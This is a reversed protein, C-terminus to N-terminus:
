EGFDLGTVIKEIFARDVTCENLVTYRRGFNKQYWNITSMTKIFEEKTLRIEKPQWLIGTRQFAELLWDPDNEQLNAIVYAGLAVLEGHLFNKGTQFEANYAFVHDAGEQPRSSGFTRCIISVDEFGEMTTRIGERTVQKIQDADELVRNLWGQMKKVAEPDYSEGTSEHALKWDWLAAHACLIDGVGSRNLRPPAGQILQYDIYVHRPVIYGIYTVHGGARAAISKTVAADVSTISVFVDVPLHRRWAVYKAADTATGGGLAVVANVEPLAREMAELRYWDLEEVFIITKPKVNFRQSVVDWPEKMTIVVFNDEQIEFEEILLDGYFLKPKIIEDSQGNVSIDFHYKEEEPWIENLIGKAQNFTSILLNSTLARLAKQADREVIAEAALMEYACNQAMLAKVDDPLGVTRPNQLKGDVIPVAAEIIASDPLWPFTGNNDVSLVLQKTQKETLALLTPVVIKDYWVAGRRSLMEPVAGPKWNRFDNLMDESLNKLQEARIQRGETAALIRDPHLYYKMYFSPLVGLMQLVEPDTGLKPMEKARQIVEGLRDVGNHKVGAIWGFHHMGGIEFELDSIPVGLLKAVSEMLSVPSDCTGIITVKTYKRVAYQVISSPNTLNLLVAHPAVKEITRCIDLVVPIGRMSNNFGGPGVTEEGPIGFKRPFTEDIARGELGGVRIQNICYDAGALAVENNTSTTVNIDVNGLSTIIDESVKKVLDLRETDRGVLVFDYAESISHHGFAEFIKPTALASGGLVVVKHRSM